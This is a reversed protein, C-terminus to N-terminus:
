PRRDSSPSAERGVYFGAQPQLLGASILERQLTAADEHFKRLMRRVDAERYRRGPRFGLALRRLVALRKRPQAPLSKLRGDRRTYERLVQLDFAQLDLGATLQRLGRRTLFRRAHAEISGPALAYVSYYGEARAEVLGAQALRSLHHSVTAPRLRLVASIEEVSHPHVALLGLLRLRNADGLARFLRLAEDIRTLATM